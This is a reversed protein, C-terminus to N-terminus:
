VQKNNEAAFHAYSICEKIITFWEDLSHEVGKICLRRLLHEVLQVAENSKKWYKMSIYLEINQNTKFDFLDLMVRDYHEFHYRMLVFKM